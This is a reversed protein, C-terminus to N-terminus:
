QPVEPREVFHILRCYLSPHHPKSVNVVCVKLDKHTDHCDSKRKIQDVEHAVRKRVEIFPLCLDHPCTHEHKKYLREEVVQNQVM